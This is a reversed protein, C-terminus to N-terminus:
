LFPLIVEITTFSLSSIGTLNCDKCYAMTCPYRWFAKQCLTSNMCFGKEIPTLISCGLLQNVPGTRHLPLDDWVQLPPNGATEFVQRCFRTNM